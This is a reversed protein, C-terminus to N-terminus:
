GTETIMGADLLDYYEVQSQIVNDSVEQAELTVALSLAQLPGTRWGVEVLEYDPSSHWGGGSTVGRFLYWLDETGPIQGRMLSWGAWEISEEPQGENELHVGDLDLAQRGFVGLWTNRVIDILRDTSLTTM